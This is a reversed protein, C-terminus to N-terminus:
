FESLDKRAVELGRAPYPIDGALQTIVGSSSQCLLNELLMHLCHNKHAMFEPPPGSKGHQPAHYHDYHMQKRVEDLCHILHFVQVELAARLLPRQRPGLDRSIQGSTQPRTRAAASTLPKNNDDRTDRPIIREM